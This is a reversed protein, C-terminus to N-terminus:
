FELVKFIFKQMKLRMLIQKTDGPLTALDPHSAIPSLTGDYDLLLALTAKDGVYDRLHHFDNVQVPEMQKPSTEEGEFINKSYVYLIIRRSEGEDEIAKLFNKMWLHVDNIKERNRLANMRVVREDHPMKLARALM